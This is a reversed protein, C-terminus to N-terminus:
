RNGFKIEWYHFFNMYRKNNVLDTKKFKKLWTWFHKHKKLIYYNKCVIKLISTLIDEKDEINTTKELLRALIIIAKMSKNQRDYETQSRTRIGIKKFSIKQRCLPCNKKKSNVFWKELCKQHFQHGCSTDIEVNHIIDLCITCNM